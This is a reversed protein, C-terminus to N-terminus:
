SLAEVMLRCRLVKVELPGLVVEEEMGPKGPLDIWISSKRAEEAFNACVILAEEDNWYVSVGTEEDSSGAMGEGPATHSTFKEVEDLWDLSAYFKLFEECNSSVTAHHLLAAMALKRKEVANSDKMMDCIQRPAVNLFHVHPSFMEPGLQPFSSEETIVMTAANEVALSAIFTLHLYREKQEKFNEMTWKIHELLVDNDWHPATGHARNDCELGGCWDYYIGDFAHKGLVERIARQRNDKWASRLCMVSGFTGNTRIRANQWSRKAWKEVNEKYDPAEFHFEKVSFYPVVHIDYRHALELFANMKEMEEAPFPPYVTSRWYIGNKFSDGDCHLRLLDVGAKKMLKVDEETPWREEFGRVFYLLSTARRLPVIQKKVFPLSFRFKLPPCQAIHDGERDCHTSFRVDYYGKEKNFLVASEQYDPEFEWNSFEDGIEWQLAETGCDLFLMSLPLSCSLEPICDGPRKGGYLKQWIMANQSWGGQGNKLRRRIGLQDIASTVSFRVPLMAIVGTLPKELLLELTHAAEGLTGYEVTHRVTVGELRAGDAAILPMEALVSNENFEVRNAEQGTHYTKSSGEEKRCVSFYLAGPMLNTNSGNKVFAGTLQGTKEDHTWAIYENSYIVSGAEVSKSCPVEATSFFTQKM